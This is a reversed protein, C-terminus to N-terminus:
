ASPQYDRLVPGPGDDDLLALLARLVARQGTADGPEGLPQGFRFPVALMRPAALREAVSRVLAIAATPIGAEEM